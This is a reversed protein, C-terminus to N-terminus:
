LLASPLELSGGLSRMYVAGGPSRRDDVGRQVPQRPRALYVLGVRTWGACYVLVAGVVFTGRHDSDLLVYGITRAGLLNTFPKYAGFGLSLDM